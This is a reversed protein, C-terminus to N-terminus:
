TTSSPLPMWPPCSAPVAAAVISIEGGDLLQLNHGARQGNISVTSDGSVPTFGGKDAQLSSAGPTLAFLSYLSRGNIGLQSIQESTIVTSVEGTDTQVAVTSAEVSITEQASGVEMKFDVRTRDAVNLVIGKRENSKFGKAVARVDYRGISLGPAVYQGDGNTSLSRKTGTDVNQIDVTASPVVAGSADTVTGVITAEQALVHAASFTLFVTLLLLALRLDRGKRAFRFSGAYKPSLSKM